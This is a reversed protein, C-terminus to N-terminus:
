HPVGLPFPSCSIPQVKPTDRWDEVWSPSSLARCPFSLLSDMRAELRAPSTALYRKFRLCLYRHAPSHLKSFGISCSASETGLRPKVQAIHPFASGSLGVKWGYQPFGATRFSLPSLPFTPMMRLGSRAVTRGSWGVHTRCLAPLAHGLSPVTHPWCCTEGGSMWLLLRIRLRARVSRRPPRDAITTGVAVVLM